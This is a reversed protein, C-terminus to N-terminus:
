QGSKMIKESCAHFDPLGPPHALQRQLVDYDCRAKELAQRRIYERRELGLSQAERLELTEQEVPDHWGLGYKKLEDYSLYRVNVPEVALMDTALQESVNMERLYARITQLLDAYGARVDEPRVPRSGKSINFYPRHIGVKGGYNRTVAGALIFLCASTCEMGKPISISLRATRLIRGIAIAAVVNGGLSNIIFDGSAM